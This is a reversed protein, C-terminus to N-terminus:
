YLPGLPMADGKIHGLREWGQGGSHFDSGIANRQFRERINDFMRFGAGALNLDLDLILSKNSSIDSLPFPKDASLRAPTPNVDM